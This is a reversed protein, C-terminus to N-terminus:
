GIMDVFENVIRKFDNIDYYQAHRGKPRYDTIMGRVYKSVREAPVNYVGLVWLGDDIAHSIEAGVGHSADSMEAVLLYCQKIWDRDRRYVSTESLKDEKELIGEETQHMSIVELGIEKLANQLQKLSYLPANDNGGRM